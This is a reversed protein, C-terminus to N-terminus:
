LIGSDFILCSELLGVFPTLPPLILAVLTTLSLVLVHGVSDVSQPEYTSQFAEWPSECESMDKCAKLLWPNQETCVQPECHRLDLQFEM